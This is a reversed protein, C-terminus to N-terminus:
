AESDQSCNDAQNNSDAAGTEFEEIEQVAKQVAMFVKAQLEDDQTNAKFILKFLNGQIELLRMRSCNMKPDDPSGWYEPDIKSTDFGAPYMFYVWRRQTSSIERWWGKVEAKNDGFLYVKVDDIEKQINDRTVFSVAGKSKFKDVSLNRWDPAHLREQPAIM